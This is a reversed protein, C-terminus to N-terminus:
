TDSDPLVKETTTTSVDSRVRGFKARFAARPDIKIDQLRKEHEEREREKIVYMEFKELALM